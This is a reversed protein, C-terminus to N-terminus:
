DDPPKKLQAKQFQEFGKALVGFGTLFATAIGVSKNWLEQQTLFFLLALMILVSLAPAKLTQWLNTPEDLTEAVATEPRYHSLVFRQFVEDRLRLAPDRVLLGRALCTRIEPRTSSVLRRHAVEYLLAQEGPSCTQWL